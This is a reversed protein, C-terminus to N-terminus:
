HSNELLVQSFHQSLGGLLDGKGMRPELCIQWHQSAPFHWQSFLCLALDHRAECPSHWPRWMVCGCSVGIVSFVCGQQLVLLGPLCYASLLFRSPGSAYIFCLPQILSLTWFFFFFDHFKWTYGHLLQPLCYEWCTNSSFSSLICVNLFEIQPVKRITWHNLSWATCAPTSPEM